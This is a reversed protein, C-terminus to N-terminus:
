IELSDACGVFEDLLDNQWEAQERRTLTALQEKRDQVAQKLMEIGARALRRYAFVDGFLIEPRRRALQAALWQIGEVTPVEIECPNQHISHIIVSHRKHLRFRTRQVEVKRYIWIINDVPVIVSRNPNLHILWNASIAMGPVISGLFFSFPRGWTQYVGNRLDSDISQVADLPDGFSELPKLWPHQDRAISWYMAPGGWRFTHFGAILLVGFAFPLLVHTLPNKENWPPFLLLLLAACAIAFSVVAWLLRYFLDRHVTRRIV